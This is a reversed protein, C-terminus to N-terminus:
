TLKCHGMFDSVQEGIALCFAVCIREAREMLLLLGEKPTLSSDAEGFKNDQWAIFM